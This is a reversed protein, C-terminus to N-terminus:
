NKLSGKKYIPRKVVEAKFKNKSDGIFLKKGISFHKEAIFGLGIGRGLSPSFTGSTVVGIEEGTDAYIINEERPSRRTESVICAIRRGAGSSKQPLLSEKGIFDKEWDIFRNLGSEIPSINEGLEHGYLSYCMEIRLVDRAGLGAPKVGRKLIENWLDPLNESPFYIEYGLEGTYGTRSVIVKKGLVDFKDFNYYALKEIGEVLSILVERSGPGQIDLKGTEDSIDKFSGKDTIHKKFHGADKEITAGNVVIMWEEEQIRFVILDDIVGGSENLMAGYRCSGVPMAAIAPTVIKDLGSLVADGGVIFEGMHSIDFVTLRKRTESYEALIGEYQLPMEWGGFPVIKANLKLHENYLSTRKLTSIASM